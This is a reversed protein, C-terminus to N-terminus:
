GGQRPTHSDSGDIAARCAAAEDLRGVGRHTARSTPSSGVVEPDTARHEIRQAIAAITATAPSAGATEPNHVWRTFRNGGCQTIAEPEPKSGTNGPEFGPTRGILRDRFPITETSVRNEHESRRSNPALPLIRVRSGRMVLATSQWVSSCLSTTSGSPSSGGRGNPWQFRFGTRRGIGGRSCDIPLGPM